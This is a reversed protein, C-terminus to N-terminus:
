VVSIIEEFEKDSVKEVTGYVEIGYFKDETVSDDLFAVSYYWPRSLSNEVDSKLKTEAERYFTEPVQFIIKFVITALYCNEYRNKDQFFEKDQQYYWNLQARIKKDWEIWPEVDFHDERIKDEKSFAKAEFLVVKKDDSMLGDCRGREDNESSVVSYEQIVSRKNETDNRIVANFFLSLYSRETFWTHFNKADNVQIMKSLEIYFGKTSTEIFRRFYDDTNDSVITLPNNLNRM